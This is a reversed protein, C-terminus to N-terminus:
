PLPLYERPVLLLVWRVRARVHARRPHPLASVWRALMTQNVNRLSKKIIEKGLGFGIFHLAHGVSSM